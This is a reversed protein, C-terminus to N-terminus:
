KKNIEATFDSFFTQFSCFLDFFPQFFTEVLKRTSCAGSLQDFYVVVSNGCVTLKTWYKTWCQWVKFLCLQTCGCWNLVNGSFYYNGFM